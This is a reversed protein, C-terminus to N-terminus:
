QCKDLAGASYTIEADAALGCGRGLFAVTATATRAPDMAITFTLTHNGQLVEDQLPKFQFEAAIARLAPLRERWRTGRFNFCIMEPAVGMGGQEALGIHLLLEDHPRPLQLFGEVIRQFDQLRARRKKLPPGVPGTFVCGGDSTPMHFMDLAHYDSLRHPKYAVSNSNLFEIDAPDLIGERKLEDLEVARGDPLSRQYMAIKALLRCIREQEPPIEFEDRDPHKQIRSGFLNSFFGLFGM